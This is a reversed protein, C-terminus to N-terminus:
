RNLVIALYLRKIAGFLIKIKLWRSLVIEEEEWGEPFPDCVETGSIQCYFTNGVRTYEM